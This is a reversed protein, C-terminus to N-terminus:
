IGQGLLAAVVIFCADLAAAIVAGARQVTRVTRVTPAGPSFRKDGHVRYPPCFVQLGQAIRKM